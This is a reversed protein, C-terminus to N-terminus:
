LKGPVGPPPPPPVDDIMWRLRAEVAGRAEDLHPLVYFRKTRIADVVYGAAEAPSMGTTRNSSRVQEYIARRVPHDALEPVGEPINRESTGINTTVFAPCLCSIGIPEGMMELEHHLNESLGLVAFKSAVYPTGTPLFGNLAAISSTNVIHGEGQERLLPLFVQCGYLVGYFNVGLVWDWSSQPIDSFPAGSSVGANNCVVHVAGFADLTARALAEVDARKSVDAPVGIADAGSAGIEEVAADLAPVEVDSLVVKMGEAAFREALGRGIGSAAGTVVAVRGRLEEMCPNECRFAELEREYRGIRARM